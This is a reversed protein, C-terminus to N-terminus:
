QVEMSFRQEIQEKLEKLENDWIDIHQTKGNDCIILLRNIKQIGNNVQKIKFEM